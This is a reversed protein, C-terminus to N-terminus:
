NSIAIHLKYDTLINNLQDIFQQRNRSYQSVGLKDNQNNCLNILDNLKGIQLVLFAIESNFFKEKNINQM